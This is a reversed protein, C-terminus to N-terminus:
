PNNRLFDCIFKIAIEVAGWDVVLSANELLSVGFKVEAGPVELKLNRILASHGMLMKNMNFELM